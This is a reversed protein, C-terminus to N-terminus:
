SQRPEATKIYRKHLYFGLFTVVLALSVATLFYVWRNEEVAIGAAGITFFAAGPCLFIFTYLTYPWFGIGTIGYAFNQLNYPFFPLLRTVMLLVMGSKEVDDFLLRQLRRNKEILPKVADRLFYRGALFAASAGVTAATLCLLTGLVPGFLLGAFLAFTVGPLALFVCCIVTAAVYILSAWLINEEVMRRLLALGNEGAIIQSWGYHRNLLFILTGMFLLCFPKFYRKM